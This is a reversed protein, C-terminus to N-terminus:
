LPESRLRRLVKHIIYLMNVVSILASSTSFAKVLVLDQDEEPAMLSDTSEALVQGERKTLNEQTPNQVGPQNQFFNLAAPTTYFANNVSSTQSTSGALLPTSTPTIKTTPAPTTTPNICPGNSGNKSPNQLCFDDSAFSTRGFSKEKTAAPYEFSDKATKAFDLLRVSDGDNNFVSSSLEFVAYSKPGIDLSFIKPTSGANESDDIYWNSLRVSFDNSNYLEVWENGSDPYPFVESLYINDYASSPVDTPTPTPTLSITPTDPSTPAATPTPTSLPLVINISVASAATESSSAPSGSSTYRKIRIKYQGTGDYETASPSGIKVSVQGSFAVGSQITVPLYQKYDSDKYWSSGNFTEGFYNTTGDKYLEGKLYNTGAGAGTINVTISFPDSTIASPVDSISITVAEAKGAFLFLFLFFIFAFKKLM